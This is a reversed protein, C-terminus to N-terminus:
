GLYDWIAKVGMLTLFLGSLVTLMTLVPGMRLPAPLFRRDTWLMAFCWLGCTFVGGLISAPTVIAVPDKMTWLLVLGFVGTYILVTARFRAYSLRRVAASVPALCEFATRAYIEYAGYVTGGIAAFIGAVYVWYLAPSISTLFQAQHTMLASGEPVLRQPHLIVAGLVVFCATFVLVSGFSAGVDIKPARLWHRARLLNAPTVDIALTAAQAPAEIRYRDVDAKLGLAGWGKERLLSVYGVYDYTGGGIAGLAAVIEVWPPRQVLAPYSDAVWPEYGSPIVPILLGSLAAAFDPRSAAVALVVCFLLLFVVVTQAKELASYSQVWTVGIVLVITITGWVRASFLLAEPSGTSGGIWNIINGLLLPLGSMWFPFCAISLTGLTWPVWNRPGPIRAWHTMPHEGTLTIYRVAGYVQIAKFAAGAAFCWLLTYGFLAGERSAFLTEGSGITVSAMIAGAGFYKLCRTINGSRLEAPPEPYILPTSMLARSYCAQM